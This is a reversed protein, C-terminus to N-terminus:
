RLSHRPSLTRQIQINKKKKKKKSINWLENFQSDETSNKEASNETLNEKVQYFKLQRSENSKVKIEQSAERLLLTVFGKKSAYTKQASVTEHWM